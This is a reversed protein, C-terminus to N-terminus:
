ASRQGRMARELECRAVDILADRYIPWDVDSLESGDAAVRLLSLGAEAFGLSRIANLRLELGGIREAVVTPSRRQEFWVSSRGGAPTTVKSGARM